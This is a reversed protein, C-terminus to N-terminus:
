SSPPDLMESSMCANWTPRPVTYRAISRSRTLRATVIFETALQHRAYVPCSPAMEGARLSGRRRARARSGGVRDGLFRRCPIQSLGDAADNLRGVTLDRRRHERFGAGCPFAGIRCVARWRKRTRAQDARGIPEQISQERAFARCRIATPCYHRPHPRPPAM